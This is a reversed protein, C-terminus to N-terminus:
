EILLRSSQFFGKGFKRQDDSLDVRSVMLSSISVLSKCIELLNLGRNNRLDLVTLKSLHPLGISLSKSSMIGLGTNKLILHTLSALHKINQCILTFEEDLFSNSGIHLYTLNSLKPFLRSLSAAATQGMLTCGLNLFKLISSIHHLSGCISVVGEDRLTNDGINLSTLNSLQPLLYSLSAAGKPGMETQSLDLVELSSLKYLIDCISLIGEDKIKNVGINLSTLNTLKPLLRSLSSAGKPGMKNNRLNLAKLFSLHHIAECISGVGEDNLQNSKLQLETLSTHKSLAYSVIRALSPRVSPDIVNEFSLDLCAENLMKNSFVCKQKRNICEVIEQKSNVEIPIELTPSVGLLMNKAHPIEELIIHTFDSNEEISLIQFRRAPLLVIENEYPHASLEELSVAHSNIRIEFLHRHKASKTEEIFFEMATQKDTSCSSVGWWWIEKGAEHNKLYYAPLEGRMGRWVTQGEVPPLKALGSLLLKLYCRYQTLGKRNRSRCAQNLMYYLNGGEDWELTYFHIAALEDYSLEHPYRGDKWETKAFIDFYDLKNDLDLLQLKSLTSKINDIRTSKLNIPEAIYQGNEELLDQAKFLKLWHLSPKSLM